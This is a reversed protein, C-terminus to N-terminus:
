NLRVVVLHGESGGFALLVVVVSRALPVDLLLLPDALIAVEDEIFMLWCRRELGGFFKGGQIPRPMKGFRVVLFCGARKFFRHAIPRSLWHVIIQVAVIEWFDKIITRQGDVILRAEPLFPEPLIIFISIRVFLDTM